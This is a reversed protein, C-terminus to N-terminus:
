AADEVTQRLWNCFADLLTAAMAAAGERLYRRCDDMSRWRTVEVMSGGDGDRRLEHSVFGAQRELLPRLRMVLADSRKAFDDADTVTTKRTLTSTVM